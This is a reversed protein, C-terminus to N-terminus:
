PSRAYPRGEPSRPRPRSTREDPRSKQGSSEFIRSRTEPSGVTGAARPSETIGGPPRRPPSRSPIIRCSSPLTAGYKADAARVTGRGKYQDYDNHEL